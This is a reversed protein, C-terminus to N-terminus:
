LTLKEGLLLVAYLFALVIQEHRAEAHAGDTRMGAESTPVSQAPGAPFLYWLYDPLLPRNRPIFSTKEWAITPNIPQSFLEAASTM